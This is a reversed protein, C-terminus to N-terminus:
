RDVFAAAKVARGGVSTRRVSGSQRDRHAVAGAGRGVVLIYRCRLRVSVAGVVDGYRARRVGARAASAAAVVPEVGRRDEAGMVLELLREIRLLETRIDATRDLLVFQECEAAVLRGADVIRCRDEFANRRHEIALQMSSAR